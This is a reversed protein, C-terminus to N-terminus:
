ELFKGTFIKNLFSIRKVVFVMITAFAIEIILRAIIFLYDNSVYFYLKNWNSLMLEINHFCLVSLTSVGFFLFINKTMKTKTSIVNAIKYMFYAGCVSGLVELFVTKLYAGPMDMSGWKIDVIWIILMTFLVFPNYKRNLLGYTKAYYGIYIFIVSVMGSQISLPLRIFKATIIGVLLLIISSIILPLKDKYNFIITFFLLGWFLSLLFWLAGISKTDAFLGSGSWSGSGFLSAISWDYISAVVNANQFFSIGAAIIIIVLCTFIYPIVLRSFNKKLCNKLDMQKFFYGSILFFLPMHFSYIVENLMYYASSKIPVSLGHAHGIIVLIIAMGKLIDFTEIRKQPQLM